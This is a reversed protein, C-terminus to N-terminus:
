RPERLRPPPLAPRRRRPPSRSPRRRGEQPLPRARPRHPPPPPRLLRPSPPRSSRGLRPRRPQPAVGFVNLDAASTWPNGNIESVAVLRVYRGTKASFRVTQETTDAAFTGAAVAPGWTSGDPSVFFQYGAITGNVEGDQRPLYRFGDVQYSGGLDLVLAHPLPATRQFWETHWFTAPNGDIAHTAAGPEGVLEESDVSVVRLQQSPITGPVVRVENSFASETGAKDSAKVAFYAAQGDPVNTVTYTTTLGVSLSTPYQGSQSGYYLTYGALTPVPTGNAQVPADWTLTVSAAQAPTAACTLSLCTLVVLLSRLLM